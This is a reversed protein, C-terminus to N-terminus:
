STGLNELGERARREVRGKRGLDSLVERERGACWTVIMVPGEGSLHSTWESVDRWAAPTWRLLGDGSGAGGVKGLGGNESIM